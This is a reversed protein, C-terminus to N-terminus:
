GVILYYIIEILDFAADQPMRFNGHRLTERAHQAFPCAGGRCEGGACTRPVYSRRLCVLLGFEARKGRRFRMSVEADRVNCSFKGRCGLFYRHRARRSRPRWGVGSSASRSVREGSPVCVGVVNSTSRSSRLRIVTSSRPVTVATAASRIRCTRGPSRTAWSLWPLRGSSTASRSRRSTATLSPRADQGYFPVVARLRLRRPRGPRGPANRALRRRRRPRRAPRRARRRTSQAHGLRRPPRADRATVERRLRRRRRGEGERRREPVLEPRPAPEPKM